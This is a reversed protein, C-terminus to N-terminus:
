ISSDNDTRRNSGSVYSYVLAPFFWRLPHVIGIGWLGDVFIVFLVLVCAPLYESDDLDYQFAHRLKNLLEGWVASIATLGFLGGSVIAQLWFNNLETLGSPFYVPFEETADQAVAWHQFQGPGIGFLPNSLWAEVGTMARAVRIGISGPNLHSAVGSAGSSSGSNSPETTTTKPTDSGGASIDFNPWEPVVVDSLKSAVALLIGLIKAMRAIIMTAFGSGLVSLIAVLIAMSVYFATAIQIAGRRTWPLLVGFAFLASLSLYGAMSGTLAFALLVIALATHDARRSWLFESDSARVGVLFAIGPLYFGSLWRPEAFPGAPRSYGYTEFMTRSPDIAHDFYPYWFPLGHNLAIAQYVVYLGIVTMLGVWIQFVTRLTRRDIRLYSVCCFLTVVYLLQGLVTFADFPVYLRNVIASVTFSVFVAIALYNGRPGIDLPDDSTAISYAVYAFLPVFSVWDPRLVRTSGATLILPYYSSLLLGIAYLSLVLEVPRRSSLWSRVSNANM